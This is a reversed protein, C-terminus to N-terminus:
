SECPFGCAVIIIPLCILHLFMQILVLVLLKQEPLHYMRYKHDFICIPHSNSKGCFYVRTLVALESHESLFVALFVPLFVDLFGVLVVSLFVALFVDLFGVLVVALFAALFAHVALHDTCIYPTCLLM